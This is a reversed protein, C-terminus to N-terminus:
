AKKRLTLYAMVLASNASDVQEQTAEPDDLVAKANELATEFQPWSAEIYDEKNLSKYSNYSNQLSNKNSNLPVIRQYKKINSNLGSYLDTVDKWSGGISTAPDIDSKIDIIVGRPYVLDILENKNVFLSKLQLLLYKLAAVGIIKELNDNVATIKNIFNKIFTAM